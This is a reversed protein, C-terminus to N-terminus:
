YYFRLAGFSSSRSGIRHRHVSCGAQALWGAIRHYHRSAIGPVLHPLYRAFASCSYHLIAFHESYTYEIAACGDIRRAM